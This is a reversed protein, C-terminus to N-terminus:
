GYNGRGFTCLLENNINYIIGYKGRRAVRFIANFVIFTKGHKQNNQHFIIFVVTKHRFKSNVPPSVARFPPTIDMFMGAVPLLNIRLLSGPCLRQLRGRRQQNEPYLM